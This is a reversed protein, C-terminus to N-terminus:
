EVVSDLKSARRKAIIGAPTRSQLLMPGTSDDSLEIQM